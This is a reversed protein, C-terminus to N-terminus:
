TLNGPLLHLIQLDFMLMLVLSMRFMDDVGIPDM